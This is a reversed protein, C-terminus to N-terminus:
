TIRGSKPLYGLLTAFLGALGAETGAPFTIGHQGLEYMTLGALFAGIGTWTTSASPVAGSPPKPPDPPQPTLPTETM